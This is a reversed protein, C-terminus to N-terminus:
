SISELPLRLRRLSVSLRSLRGLIICISWPRFYLRFDNHVRNMGSIEKCIFAPEAQGRLFHFLVQNDGHTFTEIQSQGFSRYITLMNQDQWGLMYGTCSLETWLIPFLQKFKLCSQTFEELTQSLNSAKCLSMILSWMQNYVNYAELLAIRPLYFM